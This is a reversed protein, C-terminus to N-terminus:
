ENTLPKVDGNYRISFRHSSNVNIGCSLNPFLVLNMEFTETKQKMTIRIDYRQKKENWTAEYSDPVGEFQIASDSNAYGGGMQREGFYPLYVAISDGKVKVYNPNGILDVRSANSGPFFLGANAVANLGQTMLPLAWDSEIHYLRQTILRDVQKREAQSLIGKSATSCGILIGVFIFGLLFFKTKVFV